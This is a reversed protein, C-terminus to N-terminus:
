ARSLAQDSFVAEGGVGGFGPLPKQIATLLINRMSLLFEQRVQERGISQAREAIGTCAPKACFDGVESSMVIM